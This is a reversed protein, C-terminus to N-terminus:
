TVTARGDTHHPISDLTTQEVPVRLPPHARACPLPSQPTLSPLTSPIRLRSSAFSLSSPAWLALTTRPARRHYHSRGRLTFAHDQFPPSQALRCCPRGARWVRGWPPEQAGCTAPSAGPTDGISGGIHPLPIPTAMSASPDVSLSGWSIPDSPPLRSYTAGSPISQLPTKAPSAREERM